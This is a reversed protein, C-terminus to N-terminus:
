HENAIGHGYIVNIAHHDVIGHGYIIDITHNSGNTSKNYHTAM